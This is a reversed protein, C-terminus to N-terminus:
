PATPGSKACKVISNADCKDAQHIGIIDEHVTFDDAVWRIVVSMQELGSIDRTEDIVIAFFRALKIDEIIKGIVDRYLEQVLESNVQPSQYYKEELYRKMATQSSLRMLQIM